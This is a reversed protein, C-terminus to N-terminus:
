INITLIKSQFVLLLSVWKRLPPINVRFACGRKLENMARGRLIGSFIDDIGRLTLPPILAWDRRPVKPSLQHAFRHIETSSLKLM